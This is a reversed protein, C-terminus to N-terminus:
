RLDMSYEFGPDTIEEDWGRATGRRFGCKEWFVIDPLWGFDSAAFAWGQVREWGNGAAWEVLYRVMASGLGQRRMSQKVSLCHTKLAHQKMAGAPTPLFADIRSM